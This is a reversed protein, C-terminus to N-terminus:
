RPGEAPCRHNYASVSYFWIGTPSTDGTTDIWQKNSTAEDMDIVDSAVLPWDGPPLGADSSRYVNYGTVQDPQNSDMFNLIPYSNGDTTLTVSYLYVTEDPEVCPISPVMGADWITADAAGSLSFTSTDGTLPDADSDAADDTGADPPSLIYGTPPIFRLRYSPGGSVNGFAYQGHANTFTVDLFAGTAGDFLYVLASVVGPEGVDQLGDGDLDQWVRNGIAARVATTTQQASNDSPDPDIFGTRLTASNTYVGPASPTVVIQVTAGGGVPIVGLNCTVLPPAAQCSGQSPTASLFAVGSPLTGEISVSAQDPGTNQVSLTYTVGSNHFNIVFPDPDDNMTLSLSASRPLALDAEQPGNWWGSVWRSRQQYPTTAPDFLLRMRWHYARSEALGGVLESFTAPAAGSDQWTASEGLGTGDFPTGLPKVEWEARARATGFPSRGALGLRFSTKSDSWGLPAIPASDDTRRQRASLLTGPGGNGYYLFAGGADGGHPGDYYMAGVIIDAYGDGNVDGAGAVSQGFYANCQNPRGQWSPNDPVGTSNGLYVFATGDDGCYGTSYRYAGIIIDSFGDGNLDGAGAVSNGFNAECQDGQRSWAQSTSPGSASGLFLYAQGQNCSWGNDPAGVLIDSYGDGNVDGAGAVSQGFRLYYYSGNGVWAPETALGAASGLYVFARGNDGYGLSDYYPAGVIVDSYGDGNVDGASAVSWGLYAYDQNSDAWWSPSSAPGAASGHYVFARGERYQSDYFDRSGVIIDAYGDGNVDGAAAVAFGFQASSQNPRATWPPTPSIGSPAGFYVWVRGEGDYNNAGVVIDAFGDGNVDGAGAVSQGLNSYNQNGEASWASSASLGGPGGLFLLALGEDYEGQDYGLAGVIVDSYGDGNVDGAGAVSYGLYMSSQQGDVTWGPTESPGGASGLYVSARGEDTEPDDFRPAGVIVDAFGDGNTDGATGVAAGFEASPQNSEASWDANGPEGKPRSGGRGFGTASGFYAFAAGEDAEGGDYMRAGVVLDAYGDGNVDGAAAVASGFEAAAQDSEAVWDANAPMGETRAGGADFGTSGGHYVFTAGEDIQGNDYLRAGVVLDAYGDGNADGLTSVSGGFGAVSQAGRATWSAAAPPGTASGYYVFVQGEAIELLTYDDAGVVLDAYGDGNVDGAGAVTVGFDSSDQNGTATWARAVSLGTASGLFLFAAGEDTEGDDFRPAGILVDSHGDGNVDGAAAVAAGFWSGPQDGGAAWDASAPTGTPRTGGLDLGTSSGLFVFASGEDAQGADHQRAGVLLDSFGDGNVDGATSVAVGFSAVAQDAEATWAATAGLGTATGHYVFVRGEDTQGADFRYAGVAVDAFGDGNVDGATAVSWGLNALVQEGQVTWAPSTLLPDIEVPYAADADDVVIRIGGDGSGAYGEFWAALDRGTADVVRLGSFRLLRQSGGALFDVTRGEADVLPRLGGTLQWELALPARCSTGAACDPLPRSALSLGQELGARSNVYWEVLDGRRYEVRAGDAVPNAPAMAERSEGRALASLALGLEWAPQDEARPVVRIGSPEFWTRFGHARNPAQLAAPVQALPASQGSVRYESDEIQRSVADWWAEDQV